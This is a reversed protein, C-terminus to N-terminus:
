CGRNARCNELICVVGCSNRHGILEHVFIEGAIAIIHLLSGGAVEDMQEPTLKYMLPSEFQRTDPQSREGGSTSGADAAVMPSLGTLAVILSFTTISQRQKM